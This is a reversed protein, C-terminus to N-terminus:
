IVSEPLAVAGTMLTAGAASSRPSLGTVTALAALCTVILLVPLAFRVIVDSVTPPRFADSNAILGVLKGAIAGPVDVLTFTANVGAEVPALLAVSVMTLLPPGACTTASLPVPASGAILKDGPDSPNPLRGAFVGVISGIVTLLGPFALRSIVFSSIVPVSADSKETGASVDGIIMAGCPLVVILTVKLGVVPPLLTAVNTMVLLTPGPVADTANDPLATAGFMLKVGVLRFKLVCGVLVALVWIETETCFVPVAFRTIEAIAVEPTFAESNVTDLEACNGMVSVGPVLVNTPTVKLGVLM